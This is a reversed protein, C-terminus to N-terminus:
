IAVFHLNMYDPIEAEIKFEARIAEVLGTAEKCNYITIKGLDGEYDSSESRFKNWLDIEQGPDIKNFVDWLRNKINYFERTSCEMNIEFFSAPTVIKTKM